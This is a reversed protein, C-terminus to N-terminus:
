YGQDDGELPIIGSEHGHERIMEMEEVAAKATAAVM